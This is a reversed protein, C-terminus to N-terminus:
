CRGSNQLCFVVNRDTNVDSSIKQKIKLAYQTHDKADTLENMKILCQGIDLLCFTLGMDSDVDSSIRQNIKVAKELYDHADVLIYM